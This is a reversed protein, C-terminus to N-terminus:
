HVKTYKTSQSFTRYCYIYHRELGPLHARSIVNSFESHSQAVRSRSQIIAPGSSLECWSFDTVKLVKFYKGSQHGMTKLRSTMMVGGVVCVAGWGVVGLCKWGRSVRAAGCVTGLEMQLINIRFFPLMIIESTHNKQMTLGLCPTVSNNMRIILYFLKQIQLLSGCLSSLPQVGHEWISPFPQSQSVDSFM